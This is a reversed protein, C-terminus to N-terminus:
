ILETSRLCESRFRNLGPKNPSFDGFGPRTALSNDLRLRKLNTRLSPTNGVRDHLRLSAGRLNISSSLSLVFVMSLALSVVTQTTRNKM